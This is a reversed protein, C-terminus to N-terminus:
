GTRNEESKRRVVKLKSVIKDSQTYWPDDDTAVAEEVDDDDPAVQTSQGERLKCVVMDCILLFVTIGFFGATGACVGRMGDESLECTTVAYLEAINALVLAGDDNEMITDKIITDFPDVCVNSRLLLLTLGSFIALLIYITALLKNVRVLPSTMNWFHILCLIPAIVITMIAFTKAAMRFADGESYSQCEGTEVSFSLNDDPNDHLGIKMSNFVGVYYEGLAAFEAPIGKNDDRVPKIILLRCWIDQIFFVLATITAAAPLLMTLRVLAPPDENNSGNGNDNRRFFGM